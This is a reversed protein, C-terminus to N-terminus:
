VLFMVFVGLWVFAVLLSPILIFSGGPTSYRSPCDDIPFPISCKADAYGSSALKYFTAQGNSTAVSWCIILSSYSPVQTSIRGDFISYGSGFKSTPPDWYLVTLGSSSSVASYISEDSFTVRLVGGLHINSGLDIYPPSAANTVYFQLTGNGCQYFSVDSMVKFYTGPNFLSILGLNYVIGCSSGSDAGQIGFWSSTYSILIENFNVLISTADIYIYDTSTINWTGNNYLTGNNLIELEGETWFANAGPLIQLTLNNITLGSFVLQNSVALVAENVMGYVILGVSNFISTTVNAKLYM